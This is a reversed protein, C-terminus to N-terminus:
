TEFMQDDDCPCDDASAIAATTKIENDDCDCIESELVTILHDGYSEIQGVSGIISVATSAVAEDVKDKSIIEDTGPNKVIHFMDFCTVYDVYELEEVFNLIMSKHIKGGFILEVSGEFAWPSLFAKIDDELKKGYFGNDFGQYFKVNFNVQIEEYVPNKVHLTVCNSNFQILYEMIETLTILSTKPRLPDIANKNRVNSIVVLSVHGPALESYDDIKGTYRTHNLCKAKYVTAFQELALREYDWITIARNKHRLRESVRTYFANSQEKVKGGFSSFPQAIKDISADGVKLKSITEAPLAVKLHDPDNNNDKFSVVAAQSTIQIMESIADSDNLVTARLWHLDKTLITNNITAKKSIDFNVIGSTLLGNTSDSLIDFQDFAVWKNDALYSWAITQPELGPNASGEAVQFLLSLTQGPDFDKLGIYLTGETNIQPFLDITLTVAPPEPITKQEAVGFPEVQFYQEVRDEFEEKDQSTKLDILVSSEYNIYIEKIQPTYPENPMPVSSPVTNEIALLVQKTFSAQFSKHGFDKGTLELKVFGKKTDTDFADFEKLDIDRKVKKLDEVNVIALSNFVDLPESNNNAFLNKANGADEDTELPIWNKQDLLSVNVKFAENNFGSEIYNEYYDEFGDDDDPLGHWVYNVKLMELKKSFVERSGIYFNSGIVPRIGFPQFDKGADLLSQDNQIVLEKVEDVHVSIDASEIKLKKLQEYVYPDQDIDLTIKMVPWQTKFPELLVEENYAVISEQGKLITRKIIIEGAAVDVTTTNLANRFTYALDDIKDKGIGRVSRVEALTTFGAPLLSNRKQIIKKATTEGIDYGGIKSGYGKTPDDFVPGAQPEVGAIDQWKIASNLFSLIREVVEPAVDDSASSENNEILPEIWKEEGSFRVRFVDRLNINKVEHISKVKLRVTVERTGEALFLIPSAFAFGIEAQKRENDPWFSGPKGFTKWNMEVTEIEGGIGDSSNAIPSSYIRHESDKFLAKIEDVQATNVVIDSDLKYLREVGLSDKGAKLLVGKKLLRQDVHKALSFIIFAQDAEAPKEELQLVDRYYYDLHRRTIQNLDNQAIKFLQLFGMFLAFHPETQQDPRIEKNFFEVWDGAKDNNANYYQIESAYKEVFSTLDQIKREDVAVYEPLLAKLLRQQRSTGDRNLLNKSHCNTSM